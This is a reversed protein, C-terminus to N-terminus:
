TIASVRRPYGVVWMISETIDSTRAMSLTGIKEGLRSKDLVM